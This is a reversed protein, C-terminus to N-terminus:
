FMVEWTSRVESMVEPSPSSLSAPVPPLGRVSSGRAPLGAEVISFQTPTPVVRRLVLGAQRLLADFQVQDRETAGLAVLMHLDSACLARHEATPEIKQPMLQEVILLRAPGGRAM